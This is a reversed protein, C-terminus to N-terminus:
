KNKKENTKLQQEQQKKKGILKKGEQQADREQYGFKPTGGILIQYQGSVQCAPAFVKGGMIDSTHQTNDRDYKPLM